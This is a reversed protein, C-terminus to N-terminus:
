RAKAEYEAFSKDKSRAQNSYSWPNNGYPEADFCLGRCRALAAAKAVIGLNHRVAEWDADSFWDMTSAALVSVFNDTFKQWQINKCDDMVQAFQAEDWKDRTFVNTGKPLRFILGEFPLKEMERINQRVFDPYPVDWGYEILKKAKPPQQALAVAALLTCLAACLTSRLHLGPSAVLFRRATTWM